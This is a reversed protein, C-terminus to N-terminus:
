DIFRVVIGQKAFLEIIKAEREAETIRVGFKDNWNNGKRFIADNAEMLLRAIKSNADFHNTTNERSFDLLWMVENPIMAEHFNQQVDYLSPQDELLEDSIGHNKCYFGLCCRKGDERYLRSIAGGTGRLWTQRNIVLEEQKKM